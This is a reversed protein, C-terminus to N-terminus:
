GLIVFDSLSKGRIVTPLNYEDYEGDEDLFSKEAPTFDYYLGYFDNRESDPIIIKREGNGNAIQEKCLDFLENITIM